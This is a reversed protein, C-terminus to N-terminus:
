QLSYNDLIMEGSLTFSVDKSKILNSIPSEINKIIESNELNGKFELFDERLPAYGFISISNNEKKIVIQELKIKQPILSNFDTLYKSWLVYDKQLSNVKKIKENLESVYKNYSNQKGLSSTATLSAINNHINELKKSIIIKTSYFLSLTLIVFVIFSYIIRKILFLNKYQKIKEKKEPSLLNLSIM